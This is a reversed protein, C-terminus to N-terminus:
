SAAEYDKISKALAIKAALREADYVDNGDTTLLDRNIIKQKIMPNDVGVVVVQYDTLLPPHSNIADSFKLEYLVEGFLHIDDMSAVEIDNAKAQGKIRNSLVRPTATLFLRKKSRIKQDDLVCGFSLSVKGACRHSEDAFSIDFEPVNLDKHVETILQSSQYTSFM